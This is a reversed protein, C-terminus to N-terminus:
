LTANECNTTCDSIWEAADASILRIKAARELRLLEFRCQLTAPDHGAKAWVLRRTDHDVVVM